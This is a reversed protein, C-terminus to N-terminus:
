RRRACNLCAPTAPDARLRAPAIDGGCGVCEGYSGDLIRALASELRLRELRRREAQAEAMAQRQIADMRSLRGVRTQDLEVVARDRRNQAEAAELEALRRRLATEAEALFDSAGMFYAYVSGAVQALERKLRSIKKPM